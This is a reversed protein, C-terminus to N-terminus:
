TVLTDPGDLLKNFVNNDCNDEVTDTVPGNTDMVCRMGVPPILLENLCAILSIKQHIKMIKTNLRTFLKLIIFVSISLQHVFSLYIYLKHIRILIRSYKNQCAQKPM